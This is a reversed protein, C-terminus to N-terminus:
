RPNQSGIKMISLLGTIDNAKIAARCATVIRTKAPGMRLRAAKQIMHNVEKLAALLQEHNNARKNYEGMLESNLTYLEAYAQRMAKIDQLIRADEARVVLTKANNSQDAMEATLSLRTANYEDVRLLVARFAEMEHPFDALSEMEVVQLAACLDQLVEGALEMDETLIHMTGGAEATMRLWLPKGDRLSLFAEEVPADDQAAPSHTNFTSAIWLRVKKAAGPLVFTVGAQPPPPAEKAEVRVFMAFKPLQYSLEFVQYTQSARGGVLAKIQLEASVDKAHAFPIRLEASPSREHVAISEGNEFVRDAFVVAAKICSENSSELTLYLCRSQTSPVLRVSIRTDKDVMGPAKEGSRAKAGQAEYQRLEFLLEQKRQHLEQLMDDEIKDAIGGQDVMLALEEGAPLYGRVEGESSCVIVEVRGDGRYDAQLLGSVAAGDRLMDKDIVEGSTDSRVEFKGNSWGSLLEPQGDGDLDFGSICTVQHKSKVRWRRQGPGTYVGVTGNALAYGFTTKRIPCLAAIRDTETTESVVVEGSFVRIEYDDSGV